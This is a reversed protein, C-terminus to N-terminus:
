VLFPRVNKAGTPHDKKTKAGEDAQCIWRVGVGAVGPWVRWWHDSVSADAGKFTYTWKGGECEITDVKINTQMCGGYWDQGKQLSKVKNRPPDNSTCVDSSTWPYSVAGDLEIMTGPKATCTKAYEKWPAPCDIATWQGWFKSWFKDGTCSGYYDPTMGTRGTPDGRSFIGGANGFPKCNEDAGNIVNATAGLFSSSSLLLFLAALGRAGPLQQASLFPKSM